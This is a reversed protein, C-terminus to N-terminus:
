TFGVEVWVINVHILSKPSGQCSQVPGHTGDGDAYLPEEEVLPGDVLTLRTQGM